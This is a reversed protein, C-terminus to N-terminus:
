GRSKQERHLDKALLEMVEDVSKSLTKEPNSNLERRDYGRWIMESTKADLIDVVLTSEDYPIRDVSGTRPRWGPGGRWHGFWGGYWGGYNGLSPGVLPGYGSGGWGNIYVNIREREKTRLRYRVYFDPNETAQTFGVQGLGSSLNQRLVIDWIENSGFKDITHVENNAFNWTHLQALRYRSISESRTQGVFVAGLMMIAVAVCLSRLAANRVIRRTM